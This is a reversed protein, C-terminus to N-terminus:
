LVEKLFDAIRDELIQRDLDLPLLHASRPLYLERCNQPGLRRALERTGSVPVVGDLEGHALLVPCSLSPPHRRLRLFYARLARAQRLPLRDYGPARGRWVPDRIEGSSAFKPFMPLIRRIPTYAYLWLLIGLSGSLHYPTSLAAVARVTEPAGAALELALLAGLSFGVAATVRCRAALEGLAREAAALFDAPTREELDQPRTGHGPLLPASVTFGERALREALSRMEFATGSFGHLLLAGRDGGSFFFPGAADASM